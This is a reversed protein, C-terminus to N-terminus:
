VVDKLIAGFYFIFLFFNFFFINSFFKRFKGPNNNM